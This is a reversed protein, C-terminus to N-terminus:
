VRRRRLYALVMSLSTASCFLAATLLVVLAQTPLAQGSLQGALWPAAMVGALIYVAALAITLQLLARRQRRQRESQRKEVEASLRQRFDHSLAPTPAAGLTARLARDLREDNTTSDQERMASIM